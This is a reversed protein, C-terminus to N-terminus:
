AERVPTMTSGTPASVYSIFLVEVCQVCAEFGIISKKILEDSTGDLLTLFYCCFLSRSFAQSRGASHPRTKSYLCALLSRCM